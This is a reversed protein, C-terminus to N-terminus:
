DTAIVFSGQPGAVAEINDETRRQEEKRSGATVETLNLFVTGNKSIAQPFELPM